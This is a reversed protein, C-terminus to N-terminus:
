HMRPNQGSPDLCSTGPTPLGSCSTHSTYTHLIESESASTPSYIGKPLPRFPPPPLFTFGTDRNDSPTDSIALQLNDLRPPATDCTINLFWKCDLGVMHNPIWATVDIGCSPPRLASFIGKAIFLRVKIGFWWVHRVSESNVGFDDWVGL